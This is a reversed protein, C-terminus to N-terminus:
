CCPYDERYTMWENEVCDDNEKSEQAENKLYEQFDTDENAMQEEGCKKLSLFFTIKKSNTTDCLFDFYDKLLKERNIKNTNLM